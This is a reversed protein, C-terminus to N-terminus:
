TVNIVCMSRCYKMCRLTLISWFCTATTVSSTHALHKLLQSRLDCLQAGQNRQTTRQHTGKSPVTNEAASMTVCMGPSASGQHLVDRTFCIGPTCFMDSLSGGAAYVHTENMTTINSPLTASSLVVLPLRCKQIQLVQVAVAWLLCACDSAFPHLM